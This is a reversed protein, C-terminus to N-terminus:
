EVIKKNLPRVVAGVRQRLYRDTTSRKTHGLLAQAEAETEAESAAKARMDRFQFSVGALERAKDFRYRLGDKLLPKGDDDAVLYLSPVPRSTIREILRQLEGEVVIRLKAKTKNQTVWLYGDRIDSRRLKLVDAPRQGTYLALDLADRLTPDAHARVAAYEHDEVLRDRPSERHGRVGACPNAASSLGWERAMNIVHSLLAKERNAAVPSTAGRATLFDRVDQPTIDAVAMEGFVQVLRTLQKDQEIQTKRAKTPLVERRYRLAAHSFLAAAQPLEEGTEAAYLRAWAALAEPRSNGLPTYRRPKGGHDFYYYGGKRRMHPPLDFDKTRHRGMPM